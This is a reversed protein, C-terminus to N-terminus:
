GFNDAIDQVKLNLHINTTIYDVIDNYVQQGSYTNGSSSSNPILSIQGYLETIISTCMTDLSLKPYGNKVIDQLQKMQVVAKEPRPLTGTQPILFCDTKDPSPSYSSKVSIPYDGLHLTFHMWYFSSYAEKYGERFYTSPPLILYQNKFIHFNQGQYAMFLEGETVIILEYDTLPAHAHKCEPYLAKFKGTINYKYIQNLPFIINQLM